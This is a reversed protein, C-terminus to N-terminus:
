LARATAARPQLLVHRPAREELAHARARAPRASLSAALNAIPTKRRGRSSTPPRASCCRSTRRRRPWRRFSRSPPRAAASSWWASARTTSTTRGTSRICSAARSASWARGVRAHLGRRLRLLRHLRLPLQLHASPGDEGARGRGRGDLARRRSSWSARRVRHGFRISATSATSEATDHIYSLISPGDAIAQSSWPPLPLRAHVHGLRLSHRPLPVSGLHRGAHRRGELIAFSKTPCHARVYCAAGIGSLGAGVIIVDVHQPQPGGRQAILAAGSRDSAADTRSPM